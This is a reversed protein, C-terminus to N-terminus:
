AREGGKWFTRVPCTETHCARIKDSEGPGYGGVEGCLPCEVDAVKESNLTFQPSV